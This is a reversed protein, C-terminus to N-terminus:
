TNRRYYFASYLAHLFIKQTQKKDGSCMLKNFDRIWVYHDTEENSTVLLNVDSTFTAETLRIPYIDPGNHGFVNVSVDYTKEIKNLDKMTVPM